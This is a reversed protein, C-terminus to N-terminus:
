YRIIQCFICFVSLLFYWFFFSQWPIYFGYQTSHILLSSFTWNSSFHWIPQNSPHRIFIKKIWFESDKENYFINLSNYGFSKCFINHHQIQTEAGLFHTKILGPNSSSKSNWGVLFYVTIILWICPLCSWKVKSLSVQFIVESKKELLFWLPSWFIKCFNWFHLSILSKTRWFNPWSQGCLFHNLM